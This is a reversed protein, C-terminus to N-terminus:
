ELFNQNRDCQCPAGYKAGGRLWRGAINRGYHVPGELAVGYARTAM